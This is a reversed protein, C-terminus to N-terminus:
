FQGAPPNKEEASSARVYLPELGVTDALGSQTKQQLGAALLGLLSPERASQGALRTGAPLGEALMEVAPGALLVTMDRSALWDVAMAVSLASEARWVASVDNRVFLQRYLKGQHADGIVEVRKEPDSVAATVAAFTEVGVLRCGTVYALTNASAIGVRLGTFSGPGLSVVVGTIEHVTWRSEALLRGVAATLDRAHRRTADLRATAILRDDEALGM